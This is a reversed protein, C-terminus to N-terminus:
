AGMVGLCGEGGKGIKKKLKITRKYIPPMAGPDIGASDFHSASSPAAVLDSTIARSPLNSRSATRTSRGGDSM